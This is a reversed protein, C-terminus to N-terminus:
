TVAILNAHQATDLMLHVINAPKLNDCTENPWHLALRCSRSSRSPLLCTTTHSRPKSMYVLIRDAQHCYREKRPPNPTPLPPKQTAVRRQVRQALSHLLGTQHQWFLRQTVSPLLFTLLLGKSNLRITQTRRNKYFIQVNQAKVPHPGEKIKNTGRQKKTYAESPRISARAEKQLIKLSLIILANINNKARQQSSPQSSEAKEKRTTM